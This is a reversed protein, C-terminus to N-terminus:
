SQLLENFLKRDNEELDGAVISVGTEKIYKAINLMYEDSIKRCIIEKLAFHDLEQLDDIMFSEAIISFVEKPYQFVTEQRVQKLELRLRFAIDYLIKYYKLVGDVSFKDYVSLILAQYLHLLYKDGVRGTDKCRLPYEDYFVQLGM